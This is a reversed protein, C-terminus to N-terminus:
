CFFRRGPLWFHYYCFIKDAM